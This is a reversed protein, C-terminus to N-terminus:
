IISYRTYQAVLVSSFPSGITQGFIKELKKPIIQQFNGSVTAIPPFRKKKKKPEKKTMGDSLDIQRNKM